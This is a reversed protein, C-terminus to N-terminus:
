SGLPPQPHPSSPSSGGGSKLLHPSLGRVKQSMAWGGAKQGMKCCQMCYSRSDTKHHLLIKIKNGCSETTSGPPGVGESFVTSNQAGGSKPTKLWGQVGLIRRAHLIYTIALLRFPTCNLSKVIMDLEEVRVKISCNILDWIYNIKVKMCLGGTNLPWFLAWVQDSLVVRKFEESYQMYLSLSM